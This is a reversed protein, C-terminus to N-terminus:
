CLMRRLHTYNNAFYLQKALAIEYNIKRVSTKTAFLRTLARTVIRDYSVTRYIM